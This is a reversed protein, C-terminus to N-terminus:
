KTCQVSIHVDSPVSYLSTYMVQYVTHNGYAKRIIFYGRRGWGGCRWWGETCLPSTLPCTM